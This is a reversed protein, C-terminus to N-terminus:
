GSLLNIGRALGLGVMVLSLISQLVALVKAWRKVPSVDAPGFSTGITFALYLYDLYGPQWSADNAPFLFSKNTDDRFIPTLKGLKKKLSIKDFLYYLDAFLLVSILWGYATTLIVYIGLGKLDERIFFSFPISISGFFSIISAILIYFLPQIFEVSGFFNNDQSNQIPRNERIWIPLLFFVLPLLVYSSITVSYALFIYSLFGSSVKLLIFYNFQLLSVFIVVVIITNSLNVKKILRISVYIPVFVLLFIFNISFIYTQGTLVVIIISIPLSGGLLAVLITVVKKFASLWPIIRNM